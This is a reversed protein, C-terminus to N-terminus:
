IEWVRPIATYATMGENQGRGWREATAGPGKKGQPLSQKISLSTHRTIQGLQPADTGSSEANQVAQPADIEEWPVGEAAPAGSVAAGALSADAAAGCLPFIRSVSGFVGARM